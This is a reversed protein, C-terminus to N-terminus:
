VLFPLSKCLTVPLSVPLARFPPELNELDGDLVGIMLYCSRGEEGSATCAHWGRRGVGGVGLYDGGLFGEGM